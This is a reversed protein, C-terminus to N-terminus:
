PLGPLVLERLPRPGAADVVVPRGHVVLHGDARGAAVVSVPDGAQLDAWGGAPDPLDLLESGLGRVHVDVPEGIGLRDVAARAVVPPDAGPRLGGVVADVVRELDPGLRSGAGPAAVTAARESWYGLLEAAAYCAFLQGARDDVAEFPRLSGDPRGLLLRADRCGRAYLEEEVALAGRAPVGSMAFAQAGRELADDLITAAEGLVACARVGVHRRLEALQRDVPVLEFDGMEALFRDRVRAPVQDDLGAIGLRGAAVGREGLVHRVSDAGFPRQLLSPIWTVDRQYPEERRGGRGAMLVVDGGPVVVVTAAGATPALNALHVVAGPSAANAVVVVAALREARALREVERVRRVYEDRPLRRRDFCSRGTRIVPTMTTLATLPGDPATTATTM